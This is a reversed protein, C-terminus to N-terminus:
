LGVRLAYIGDMERGGVLWTFAWALVSWGLSAAEGCLGVWGGVLPPPPPPFGVLRPPPPDM